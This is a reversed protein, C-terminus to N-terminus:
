PRHNAERARAGKPSPRGVRASRWLGRYPCWTSHDASRRASGACDRSAIDPSPQRMDRGDRNQMTLNIAINSSQTLIAVGRDIQRLGHQDPWIAAGELANLYGYCNPGLIPMDGAAAILQAELDTATGDEAAAESFGSAFCIAGGANLRRLQGVIEITAVRNVGIFAADIPDSVDSLSALADRGAITPKTPHSPIIQGSFGIADAASIISECWAGGGVVAITRPAFLRKLSM